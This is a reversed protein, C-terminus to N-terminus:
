RVCREDRLIQYKLHILFQDVAELAIKYDMEKYNGATGALMAVMPIKNLEEVISKCDM